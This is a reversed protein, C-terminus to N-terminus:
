PDQPRFDLLLRGGGFLQLGGDLRHVQEVQPLADLFVTEQKMLEMPGARRTAGIESFSVLPGSGGVWGGFWRNVGGHGRLKGGKQWLLSVEAGAEVPEGQISVCVWSTGVLGPAVDPPAPNSACSLALVGALLTTLALLISRPM